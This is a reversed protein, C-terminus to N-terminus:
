QLPGVAFIEWSCMSADQKSAMRLGQWSIDSDNQQLKLMGISLAATGLM